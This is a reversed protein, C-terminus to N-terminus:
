NEINEIHVDREIEYRFKGGKWQLRYEGISPNFEEVKMIIYRPSHGGVRLLAADVPVWGHPTLIEAWAHPEEKDRMFYGTLRRAPIGRMRALAILLDTFEDCDGRGERYAREAGLREDQPEATKIRERLFRVAGAVWEKIEESRFWDEERIEELGAGRWYKDGIGYKKRIAPAIDESKGWSFESPFYVPIPTLEYERAIEIKGSKRVIKRHLLFRNVGKKIMKFGNPIKLVRVIQRYEAYSQVKLTLRVNGSSEYRITERHVIHWTPTELSM